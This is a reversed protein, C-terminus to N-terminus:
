TLKGSPVHNTKTETMNWDVHRVLQGNVLWKRWCIGVDVVGLWGSGKKSLALTTGAQAHGFLGPEQNQSPSNLFQPSNMSFQYNMSLEHDIKMSEGCNIWPSTMFLELEHAIWPCYQPHNFPSYYVIWSYDHGSGKSKSIEKTALAIPWSDLQYTISLADFLWYNM